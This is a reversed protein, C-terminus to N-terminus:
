VQVTGRINQIKERSMELVNEGDFLIEGGAYFGPPQAVLRMMSLATVSKGCGSEGVLGLTESPALTFSVRDIAKFDNYRNFFLNGNKVKYKVTVNEIDLLNDKM